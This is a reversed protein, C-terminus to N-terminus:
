RAPAVSGVGSTSESLAPDGFYAISSAGSASADLTESVNVIAKAAGDVSVTAVRSELNAADYTGAQGFTVTQSDVTGGLTISANGSAEVGLTEAILNEIVVSGAGSVNLTFDDTELRQMQVQGAGSLEIGTLDVVTLSYVIEEKTRFGRDPRIILTGNQVVTEIRRLVREEADITLTETDGQEIVLTGVGQLSVRNFGSVDRAEGRDGDPVPTEPPPAPVAIDYLEAAEDYVWSEVVQGGVFRAFAAGGIRLRPDAGEPLSVMSTDLTGRFTARVAATDGSAVVDEILIVADPAITRLETLATKLGAVDASFPQGTLLSRRPTHNVYDTAFVTDLVTMDGSALAQNIASAARWSAAETAATAFSIQASASHQTMGLGTGTAVGAAGLRRLASRRSIAVLVRSPSRGVRRDDMEVM